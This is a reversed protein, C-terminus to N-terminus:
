RRIRRRLTEPHAVRQRDRMRTRGSRAKSSIFTRCYEGGKSRFTLGIRVRADPKQTSALQESLAHALAGRAVVHGREAIWDVGPDSGPARRSDGLYTGGILVGLVVSAAMASWEFWAWRAPARSVPLGAREARRDLLRKPM